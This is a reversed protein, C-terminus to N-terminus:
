GGPRPLTIAVHFIANNTGEKEPAYADVCSKHKFVILHLDTKSEQQVFGGPAAKTACLAGAPNRLVARFCQAPSLLKVANCYRLGIAKRAAARYIQIM